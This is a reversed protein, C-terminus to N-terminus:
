GIEPHSAPASDVPSLAPVQCRPPSDPAPAAVNSAGEVSWPPILEYVLFNANTFSRRLGFGAAQLADVWPGLPANVPAPLYRPGDECLLLADKVLAAPTPYFVRRKDHWEGLYYDLEWGLWHDYIVTAVPKANLYAAVEDIGTYYTGGNNITTPIFLSTMALLPTLAALILWSRPLLVIGRAVLSIVLPLLPLLYRDYTNFAVLWHLWAYAAAYGLLLLDYVTTHWRSQRYVRYAVAALGIGVGPLTIWGPGLLAGGYHLWIQLRPLVEDSRVFRGPANNAAALAFISTEGRWTDWVLIAAAMGLWIMAFRRPRFTAPHAVAGMILVLPLYYLAQQKSAFALGMWLGSWGWRGRVAAWLAIVMWLLMWGDTLATASFATAYPSFAMFILAALATKTNYLQKALAYIVAMLLVSAVMGPLRAAFESAGFIVQSLANFYIALPTKDLAGPLLWDGNLAAARAFTSFFAEDPHFRLDRVLVHIRLGTGALLIFIPIM